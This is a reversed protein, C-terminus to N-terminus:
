LLYTPNLGPVRSLLGDPPYQSSGWFRCVGLYAVFGMIRCGGNGSGMAGLGVYQGIHQNWEHPENGLAKNSLREVSPRYFCYKELHDKM